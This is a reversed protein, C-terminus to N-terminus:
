WAGQKCLGIICSCCLRPTRRSSPDGWMCWVHLLPGAVGSAESGRAMHRQRWCCNRARWSQQRRRERGRRRAARQRPAWAQRRRQSPRLRQQRRRPRQQRWSRAARARRTWCAPRKRPTCPSNTSRRTSLMLTTRCYRRAPTPPTPHPPASVHIQNLLWLTPPPLAIRPPPPHHRPQIANHLHAETPRSRLLPMAQLFGLWCTLQPGWGSVQRREIAGLSVLVDFGHGSAVAQHYHELLAAEEAEM